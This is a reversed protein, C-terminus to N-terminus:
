KGFVKKVYNNWESKVEERDMKEVDKHKPIKKTISDHSSFNVHKKKSSEYNSKEHKKDKKLPTGDSRLLEIDDYSNDDYSDDYLENNSSSRSRRETSENIRSKLYELNKGYKNTINYYTQKCVGAKECARNLSYGNFMLNNIEKVNKIQRKVVNNM